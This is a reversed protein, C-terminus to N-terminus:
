RVLNLVGVIGGLIALPKWWGGRGKVREPVRTWVVVVGCASRAYQPPTSATTYVEIGEVDEPRLMLDLSMGEYAAVGDIYLNPVCGGRVLLHADGNRDPVVRVGPVTRFMESIQRPRRAEIAERTVFRGIGLARRREFGEMAQSGRRRVTVFVPEVSMAVPVLSATIETRARAELLVDETIERYGIRRISVTYTGVPVRPFAFDGASDTEVMALPHDAGARTIAVLAGIVPRDGSRDRVTGALATRVASTRAPPRSQAYSATAVACSALLGAGAVLAPRVL